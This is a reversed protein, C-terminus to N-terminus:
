ALGVVFVQSVCLSSFWWSSMLCGNIRCTCAQAHMCVYVCEHVSWCQEKSASLSESVCFWGHVEIEPASCSFFSGLTSRFFCPTLENEWRHWTSLRCTHCVSVGSCGSSCLGQTSCQGGSPIKIILAVLYYQLFCDPLVCPRKLVLLLSSGPLPDLFSGSLLCLTVTWISLKLRCHWESPTLQM